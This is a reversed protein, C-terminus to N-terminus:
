PAGPGPAEVRTGVAPAKELFLRSLLYPGLASTVIAMVVIATYLDATILGAVYATLAVIIGVEGRPVLGAAVRLAPRRGIEGADYAVSAFKGGVALVTLAAALPWTAVLDGTSVFLGISVFFFPVFFTNLTEFRSRLDYRDRFESFAMGAFFAGVISALQFSAALASAGLCLLLVLIFAANRTRFQV